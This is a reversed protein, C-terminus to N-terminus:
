DHSRSGEQGPAKLLAIFFPDSGEWCLGLRARQRSKTMTKRRSRKRWVSGGCEQHRRGKSIDGLLSKRSQRSYVIDSQRGSLVGFSNKSPWLLLDSWTMERQSTGRQKSLSQSESINRKKQLEPSKKLRKIYKTTTKSKFHENKTRNINKKKRSVKICM